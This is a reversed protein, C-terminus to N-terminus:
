SSVVSYESVRRSVQLNVAVTQGLERAVVAHGGGASLEVFGLKLDRAGGARAGVVEQAHGGAGELEGQHGPLTDAIDLYAM